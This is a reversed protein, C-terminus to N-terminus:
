FPVEETLEEWRDNISPRPLKPFVTYGIEWDDENVAANMKRALHEAIKRTGVLKVVRRAPNHLIADTVPCYSPTEAVVAFMGAPVTVYCDDQMACSDAYAMALENM